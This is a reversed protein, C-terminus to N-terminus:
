CKNTNDNYNVTMIVAKHDSFHVTLLQQLVARILCNRAFALDIYSGNITTPAELPLCTMSHNALMYEMLWEGGKRVDVNFDGVVVVPDSPKVRRAVSEMAADVYEVVDDRSINPALYLTVVVIGDGSYADTYVASYPSEDRVPSTSVAHSVLNAYVHGVLYVGCYEGRSGSRAFCCDDIADTAQPCARPPAAPATARQLVLFPSRDQQRRLEESFPLYRKLFVDVGGARREAFARAAFDYGCLTVDSGSNNWTETFCLLDVRALVPDKRTM